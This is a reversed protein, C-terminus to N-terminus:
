CPRQPRAQCSLHAQSDFAASWSDHCWDGQTFRRRPCRPCRRHHQERILPPVTLPSSPSCYLQHVAVEYKHKTNPFGSPLSGPIFMLNRGSWYTRDYSQARWRRRARPTPVSATARTMRLGLNGDRKPFNKEDAVGTMDLASTHLTCKTYM